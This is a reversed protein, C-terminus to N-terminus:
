LYALVKRGDRAHLFIAVPWAVVTVGIVVAWNVWEVPQGILPDRLVEMFHYFPNYDLFIRRKGQAMEPLWIIPTLLFSVTMISAILNNIDRYRTGIIAFVYGVAYLCFLILFFGPIVLLIDPWAPKVYLYTIILMPFVGHLFVFLGSTLNSLIAVSLPHAQNILIPRGRIFAQTGGSILAVYLRWVAMGIAMNPVLRWDPKDFVGTFLFTKMLVVVTLTLLLWLTGLYTRRYQLTVGYIAAVCWIRWYQLGEKLDKIM